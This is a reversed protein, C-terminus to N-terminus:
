ELTSIKNEENGEAVGHRYLLKGETIVMGLAVATELRFYGSHTVWYKKLAINSQRMRNHNEIENYANFYKVPFHPRVVPSVSVNSYIEPFCSLYPDGPETSGAGDTSIFGLVKRSIYKYGIDLLPRGGPVRPNSKMVIYSGGPWDKTSNELTALCFGKHTMKAPGCYNVGAYM